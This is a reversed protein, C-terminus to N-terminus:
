KCVWHSPGGTYFLWAAVAVNAEPDFIDAGGWGAAVSRGDWYSALHQFLGSATSTPNKANPDGGSECAMVRMAWPVDGPQFYKSILFSWEEVTGGYSRTSPPSKEPPLYIPSPHRLRFERWESLLQPTLATETELQTFWQETWEDIETETHGWAPLPLLLLCILVVTSLQTVTM